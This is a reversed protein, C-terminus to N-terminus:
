KVPCTQRNQNLVIPIERVSKVGTTGFTVELMLGHTVAESFYQDFIMNGLSYYIDRGQYVEHEQVVHPHSGIVISAGADIFSHALRKQRDTAPVYEEGWHTYVVVVRGSGSEKQIAQATLDSNDSNWDSWNMFSLPIGRLDIRTIREADSIDPDGFYGVNMHSLYQKTSLLGERKFNMIHNNGLNVMRINHDYLLQATSPPFTFTYNDGDGPNSFQSISEHATIPGELNAVVLDHTKLLPDLCAFLFDGGKTDVVTRISRDFMMDGGFLVKAQAPVTGVIM